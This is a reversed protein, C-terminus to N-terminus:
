TRIVASDTLLEIEDQMYNEFLYILVDFINEKM